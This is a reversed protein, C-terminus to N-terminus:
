RTRQCLQPLQDVACGADPQKPVRQHETQQHEPAASQAHPLDPTGGQQQTARRHSGHAAGQGRM